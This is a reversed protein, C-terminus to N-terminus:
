IRFDYKVNIASRSINQAPRTISSSRLRVIFAKPPDMWVVTLSRHSSVRPYQSSKSSVWTPPSLNLKKVPTGFVLVQVIIKRPPASCNISSVSLDRCSAMIITRLYTSILNKVNCNWPFDDLQLFLRLRINCFKFHSLQNLYKTKRPGNRVIGDYSTSTGNFHLQGFNKSIMRSRDGSLFLEYKCCHGSCKFTNGSLKTVISTKIGGINQVFKSLLM